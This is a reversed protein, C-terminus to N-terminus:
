ESHHQPKPKSTLLVPPECTKLFARIERIRGRLKATEIDDHESELNDRLLHLRYEMYRKIEVYTDTKATFKLQDIKGEKSIHNKM